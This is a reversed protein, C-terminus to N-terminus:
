GGLTKHRGKASSQKARLTEIEREADERAEAGAEDGTYHLALGSLMCVLSAIYLTTNTTWTVVMQLKYSHLWYQAMLFYVYFTIGWEIALSLVTKIILDLLIDTFFALFFLVVVLLLLLGYLFYTVWLPLTITPLRIGPISLLDFQQFDALDVLKLLGNDLDAAVGGFENLLFGFAEIAVHVFDQILSEIFGVVEGVFTVLSVEVCAGGPVIDCLAGLNWCAGCIGFHGSVVNALEKALEAILNVFIIVSEVQSGALAALSDEFQSFGEIQPTFTVWPPVGPNTYQAISVDQIPFNTEFSYILLLVSLGVFYVMPSQLPKGVSQLVGPSRLRDGLSTTISKLGSTATHKVVLKREHEEVVRDYMELGCAVVLLVQVVITLQGVSTYTRQYNCFTLLTFITIEPDGVANNTAISLLTLLACVAWFANGRILRKAEPFGQLLVFLTPAVSLATVLLLLPDNAVIVSKTYGQCADVIYPYVDLLFLKTTEFPGLFPAQVVGLFVYWLDIYPHVYTPAIEGTFAEYMLRIDNEVVTQVFCTADTIIYGFDVASTYYTQTSTYIVYLNGVVYLLQTGLSSFVIGRLFVIFFDNTSVIFYAGYGVNKIENARHHCATLAVFVLVLEVAVLASAVADLTPLQAVDVLACLLYLGGFDEWFEQAVRGQHPIEHRVIMLLVLPVRFAYLLLALNDSGVVSQGHTYQTTYQYACLPVGSLLFALALGAYERWTLPSLLLPTSGLAHQQADELQATELQKRTFGLDDIYRNLSPVFKFAQYVIELGVVVLWTWLSAADHGILAYTNVLVLLSLYLNMEKGYLYEIVDYGFGRLLFLTWLLILVLANVHNPATTEIAYAPVVAVATLLFGLLVSRYTM